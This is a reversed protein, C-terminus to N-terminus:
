RITKYAEKLLTKLTDGHSRSIRKLKFLSEPDQTIASIGYDCSLTAKFGLKKAIAATSDSSRGYPYTFTNPLTGTMAEIRNQLKMLDQALVQEYHGIDEGPNQTCGIRGKAKTHLDYSHNQVEVLGSALMENLQDWTAYSYLLNDNPTQSFEDISKGIISFVAPMNYKQLLPFGNKYANLYGDDFSLIIPNDPLPENDYVWDILQTMTIPHYENEYLFQLDSELEHPTIVDKGTRSTNIGHYMLIPVYVIDDQGAIAPVAKVPHSCVVRLTFCLVLLVVILVYRYRIKLVM